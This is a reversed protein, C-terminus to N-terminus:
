AMSATRATPRPTIMAPAPRLEFRWTAGDLSTSVNFATSHRCDVGHRVVQDERAHRRDDMMAAGPRRRSGGAGPHRLDDHRVDEILVMPRMADLLEAEPRPSQGHVSTVASM